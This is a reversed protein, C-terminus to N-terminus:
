SKEQQLAPTGGAHNIRGASPVDASAARCASSWPWYQPLECLGAAVPNDRIYNRALLLHADNRIFRDHYDQQWFKGQCRLHRNIAKATYSKWAHVIRDLPHRAFTEVLVHVHNPMVCWELLRYKAGDFHLLANEVLRGCVPDRLSCRGFGQDLARAIRKQSDKDDHEGARIRALIEAPLADHLRFTIAQILGPVDCHPLYGRSYWTKHQSSAPPVGASGTSIGAPLADKM